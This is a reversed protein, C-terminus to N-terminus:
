SGAPADAPSGLPAAAAEEELESGVRMAEELSTIGHAAYDLACITLPRFEPHSRAARAYASPDNRRLADAMADNLELLEYAGIRGRYGTGSCRTCGPGKQFSLREAQRGVLSALWAREQASPEYPARCERCTRRLLRQALVCQLASAALYGETGMDILRLASAIADNTHLTSLVLHGTMAARLGIEATERDRMEGVMVIDPDQRLAARLVSAFTLGIKPNVQVQNVRPLRYEVPDEVTIIKKSAENLERLAAYLTTTKGSGTPGTVAILGHPRQLMRRFRARLSKPMGLHDLNLMGESQDLLRMAVSEGYQIPMTSLRVDISRDRVKINFRGDQPLRKESIDLSSMLKLRLVLASAIRPGSVVQERLVGDVRQRIRLTHENPEIHIDSAQTAVADEFLSQLLKAVPAETADDGVPLQRVDFDNAALEDHLEEALSTIQDPNQYVREIAQLLDSERVIAQRVSRKLIRALEDMAFVDTPDAMGVVFDAGTEELVIARFRRAHTEPLRLVVDRNHQYHRLDVLPIALQQALLELIQDEKVYGLDVLTQGLRRGTKKQEVLASDLQEQSILDRQCLLEGIRIKRRAATQPPASSM